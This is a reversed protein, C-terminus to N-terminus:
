AFFGHIFWQYSRAADYHGSRFLWYRQGAEDEVLYYDRHQGEQLWWEQEIREPGDAKIVKHLKGKFRFLMPPYDPIPATVEVPQPYNLLQMPRPRSLKWTTQLAEDISAAKKFSREPWYHEDPVYRQIIQSGFKTAFRDMLEGLNAVGSGLPADWMSEQITSLAEVKRAQLTFLEIGMAPEMKEIKLEFLGFLHQPNCSPRNTGIGIQEIKGDVRYGMLVAERLGKEEQQLKKCLLSLLRQLAISIGTANVIPDICPLREQFPEEPVVPQIWEETIGLAQDLRQLLGIGFRRRLATRPMHIFQSIQRLGLKNLRDTVLTDLRLSAAPLSLLASMQRGEEIISISKGNRAVAWAAGISDAIGIRISYNFQSLRKYIETLYAKEGGWLHACGSIDLIIGEPPDISSVPTFRICWIALATLLRTALGPEEEFVLISPLIARADAVTMGTIIGNKAALQNMATVMMRGHVLAAIVFAQSKVEPHRRSINDTLLHQFWIAMFRKAM